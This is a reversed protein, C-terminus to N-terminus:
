ESPQRLAEPKGEQDIAVYVFCGETVKRYDSPSSGLAWTEINVHLSTTGQKIVDVYCCVFDGVSVPSIFDMGQISVTVIKHRVHRKAVYLGALDMQSVIWGGFIDGNVNTNAPMALTRIALEGKPQNSMIGRKKLIIVRKSIFFVISNSPM